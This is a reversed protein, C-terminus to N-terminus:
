GHLDFVVASNASTAQAVVEAELGKLEAIAAGVIPVYSPENPKGRLPVPTLFPSDTEILMSGIPCAEAAERLGVASPFTVIGSFSLYGGRRLCGAAEDPGGTFCHFVLRPPAGERDLISFTDDWADRTHVVLALGHRHALQIQEAFAERQKGRPSHDYHYDLGCEGVAVVRSASMGSSSLEKLYTAVGETGSQADHPHLGVTAWLEVTPDGKGTPGAAMEVARRSSAVDTGVLVIRRTGSDRARDVASAVSSPEETHLHCHSDTWLPLARLRDAGAAEASAAAVAGSGAAESAAQADLSVAEQRAKRERRERRGGSLKRGFGSM